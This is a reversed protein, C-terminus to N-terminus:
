SLTLIVNGSKHGGDVHRHADVVQELPFTSDIVPRIEGIMVLDTIYRLDNQRDAPPRLGTFAIAAKKRSFRTTLLMQRLIAMSIVTTLYRGNEKLARKCEAYSSRGVADFIIDYTEGSRTFDEEAYNIVRDAGLSKVLDINSAGCVGTVEAGFHRALQVAASGVSGAAGNVLVRDGTQIRGSDRLFPLATLAGYPIAAAQEFSLEPPIVALPAKETLCVFEAHAGYGTGTDGFVRDGVQCTSVDSGVAEVIGAIENGPIPHKPKFPGTAMRAFPQSGSRFITDVATVVAARVRVLIENSKPAPTPIERIELVEPPGYRKYIAANM